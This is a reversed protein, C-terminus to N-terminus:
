KGHNMIRLAREGMFTLQWRRANPPRYIWGRTDLAKLTAWHVPHGRHVLGRTQLLAGSYARADSWLQWGEGANLRELVEKQSETM